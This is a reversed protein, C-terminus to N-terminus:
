ARVKLRWEGHPPNTVLYSVWDLLFALGTSGVCEVARWEGKLRQELIFYIVM